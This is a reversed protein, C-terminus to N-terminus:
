AHEVILRLKWDNPDAILGRLRPGYKEVLDRVLRQQGSMITYPLARGREDVLVLDRPGCTVIRVMGGADDCGFERFLDVEGVAEDSPRSGMRFPVGQRLWDDYYSFSPAYTAVRKRGEYEPGFWGLYLTTLLATSLPFAPTEYIVSDCSCHPCLATDAGDKEAMWSIVERAPFVSGCHFCGCRRDSGELEPRNYATLRNLAHLDEPGLHPVEASPDDPVVRCAM